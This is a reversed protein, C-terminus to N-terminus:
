DEDSEPILGEPLDVQIQKGDLDVDVIFKDVVPILVEGFRGNVEYIDHEATAFMRQLLGIEGCRRDIVAFGQVEHWYYKGDSLKPLDALPMLVSMGVLGEARDVSGVGDLRLLTSGKHVSIREPVYTALSGSQDRLFISQAHNLFISGVTHPMVKLEGRLGHLGVVTGFDFLENESFTM